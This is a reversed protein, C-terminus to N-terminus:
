NSGNQDSCTLDVNLFKGLLSMEWGLNPITSPSYILISECLNPLTATFLFFPADHVWEQPTRCHGQPPEPCLHEM